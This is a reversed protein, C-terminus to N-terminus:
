HFYNICESSAFCCNSAYEYTFTITLDSDVLARKVLIKRRGDKLEDNLLWQVFETNSLFVIDLHIQVTTAVFALCLSQTESNGACKYFDVRFVFRSELCFAEHGAVSTLNFTLLGTLRFSTLM